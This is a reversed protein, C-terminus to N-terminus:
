FNYSLGLKVFRPTGPTFHIETVPDAEWQLRSTTNFQAELWNSNLLNEATLQLEWNGSRYSAVADA